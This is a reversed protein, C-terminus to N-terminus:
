ESYLSLRLQPIRGLFEWDSLRELMSHEGWGEWRGEWDQCKTSVTLFKLTFCIIDVIEVTVPWIQSYSLSSINVTGLLRQTQLDHISLTHLNTVSTIHQKDELTLSIPKWMLSHINKCTSLVSSLSRAVGAWRKICLRLSTASSFIKGLYKIDQNNLKCFDQLTVELTKFEQNWNFFLSVARSPIYSGSSEHTHMRCIDEPTKDQSAVAGRCFDLKVFDLTSACNSLDEFFDFLYNPINESNIYLSKSCFFDEFEKSLNSAAISGRFLNIGCETFSTINIAKLIEQVTTNKVNQMSEQRWLTRKTVCLGLLSGHQYVSALHKLATRTAKASSGCMYMLLNSYKSIIDSISDMKPLYSNGKTVEVPEGSTLLSSLRCGATYEQFSKYFFKRMPKFRQATYKCLLGVTLLVDENVISLDDPEFDFRHSFVGELALDRRHDLTQTFDSLAVGRYRHKNKNKLLDCFTHFLTTQTNSHLESEGIQIICTIVVFLPTKMLNRLCRSKQIQLLLGEALEKILVRWIFAQTSEELTDGVDVTLVGFQQVHRLCETTATVNVM